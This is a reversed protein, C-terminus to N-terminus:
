AEINVRHIDSIKKLVEFAQEIEAGTFTSKMFLKLIFDTDKVNLKEVIKKQQKVIESM